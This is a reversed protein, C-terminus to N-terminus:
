LIHVNTKKDYNNAYYDDNTDCDNNFDIDKCCYYEYMASVLLTEVIRLILLQRRIVFVITYIRVNCSCCRSFVALDCLVDM